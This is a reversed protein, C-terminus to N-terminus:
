RLHMRVDRNVVLASALEAGGDDRTYTFPQGSLPDLPVEALFDPVLSKLSVPYTGRTVKHQRLAVALRLLECRATMRDYVQGTRFLNPATIKVLYHVFSLNGVSEQIAALRDVRAVSPPLQVAEAQEMFVEITKAQWLSGMLRPRFMETSASYAVESALGNAFVAPDAMGELLSWYRESLPLPADTSNFVHEAAEIGLEVIAVRIMQVILTPDENLTSALHLDSELWLCAADLNGARAEVVAKAAINQALRRVETLQGLLQGVDYDDLVSGRELGRAEEVAAFAAGMAAMKEQARSEIEEDTPLPETGRGRHEFAEPGETLAHYPSWDGLEAEVEAMLGIAYRYVRGADEAAPPREPIFEEYEVKGFQERFRDLQHQYNRNTIQDAVVYVIILAFVLLALVRLIRVFWHLKPTPRPATLDPEM